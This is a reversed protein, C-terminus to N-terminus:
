AKSPRRYGYVRIGDSIKEYPIGLAAVKEEVAPMAGARIDMWEIFQDLSFVHYIDGDWRPDDDWRIDKCRFDLLPDTELATFLENWRTSNMVSTLGQREAIKLHEPLRTHMQGLAGLEAVWAAFRVTSINNQRRAPPLSPLQYGHPLV